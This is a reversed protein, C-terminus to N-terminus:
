QEYEELANALVEDEIDFIDKAEGSPWRALGQRDLANFIIQCVRESSYQRRAFYAAIRAKPKLDTPSM